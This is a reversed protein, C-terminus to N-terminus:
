VRESSIARQHYPYVHVQQGSGGVVLVHTDHPVVDYVVGGVCHQTDVCTGRTDYITGEPDGLIKQTDYLIM